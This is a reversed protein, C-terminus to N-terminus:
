CIKWFNWTKNFSSNLGSSIWIMAQGEISCSFRRSDTELYGPRDPQTYFAQRTPAPQPTGRGAGGPSSYSPHGSFWVAHQEISVASHCLLLSHFSQHKGKFFILIGFILRHASIVAENLHDRATYTLLFNHHASLSITRLFLTCHFYTVIFLAFFFKISICSILFSLSLDTLAHFVAIKKVVSCEM